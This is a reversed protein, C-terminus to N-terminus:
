SDAAASSDNEARPRRATGLIRVTTSPKIPADEPGKLFPDIDIKKRLSRGPGYAQNREHASVWYRHDPKARGSPTRDDATTPPPSPRSTAPKIRILRVEPPPRHARAYAKRIPPDVPTPEDRTLQQAIILWSAVLSALPHDGNVTLEQRVYEVHIPVLWGIEHRVTEMVTPLLDLGLSRYCVMQWGGPRPTWSAAAIRHRRDLPASWALLGSGGPVIRDTIHTTPLDALVEAVLTTFQPDIWYLRAQDLGDAILRRPETHDIPTPLGIPGRLLGTLRDRVKPLTSAKMPAPSWGGTTLLTRGPERMLVIARHLVALIQARPDTRRWRMVAISADTLTRHDDQEILAACRCCVNWRTSYTEMVPRTGGEALAEIEPTRYMWVPANASCLHCRRFVHALQYAPVPVPDHDGSTPAVPHEYTVTGDDDIANLANTCVVCAMDHEIM